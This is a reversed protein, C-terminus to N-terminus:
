CICRLCLLVVLFLMCGYRCSVLCVLARLDSCIILARVEVMHALCFSVNSAVCLVMVHVMSSYMEVMHDGIADEMFMSFNCIICFVAIRIAGERRFVCKERSPVGVVARM